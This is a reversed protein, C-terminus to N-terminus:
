TSIGVLYLVGLLFHFDVVCQLQQHHKSYVVVIFHSGAIDSPLRPVMNTELWSWMGDVCVCVCM